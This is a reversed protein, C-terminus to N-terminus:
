PLSSLPWLDQWALLFRARAITGPMVTERRAAIMGVSTPKDILMSEGVPKFHEGDVSASALVRGQTDRRLRLYVPPRGPFDPISVLKRGDEILAITSNDTRYRVLRVRRGDQNLAYLGASIASTDSTEVRTTFSWAPSSAVAHSWISQCPPGPAPNDASLDAAASCDTSFKWANPLSSLSPMFFRAPISPSDRRGNFAFVGARTNGTLSLKLPEGVSTWNTGDMSVWGTFTDEERKLRLWLPLGSQGEIDPFEAATSNASSLAIHNRSTFRRGLAVYQLPGAWMIVGGYQGELTPSFSVRATVEDTSSVLPGLRLADPAPDPKPAKIDGFATRIELGKEVSRPYFIWGLIAALCVLTLPLLWGRRPPAKKPDHAAFQPAYSRLPLTIRIPDEAGPGDYYKALRQRVQTALKRVSADITPDFDTKGLVKAAIEFQDASETGALVRTATFELFQRLQRSSLFEPSSLVKELHQEHISKTEIM